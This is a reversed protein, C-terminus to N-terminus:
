PYIYRVTQHRCMRCMRHVVTQDRIVCEVCEIFYSLVNSVNSSQHVTSYKFIIRKMTWTDINRYGLHALPVDRGNIYM